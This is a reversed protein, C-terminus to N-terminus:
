KSWEKIQKKADACWSLYAEYTKIGFKVTLYYHKHTDNDLAQELNKSFINLVELEGKCREEFRVIHEDVYSGAQEVHTGLM